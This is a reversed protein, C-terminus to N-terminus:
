RTPSFYNGHHQLVNHFTQAAEAFRPVRLCTAAAVGVWGHAAVWSARLWEPKTENRSKTIWCIAGRKTNHRLPWGLAQGLGAREIATIVERGVNRDHPADLNDTAFWHM